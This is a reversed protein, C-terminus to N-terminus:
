VFAVTFAAAWGRQFLDVNYFKNFELFLELTAQLDGMNQFFSANDWSQMQNCSQHHSRTFTSSKSMVLWLDCSGSSFVGGVGFNYKFMYNLNM